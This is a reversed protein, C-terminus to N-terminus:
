FVVGLGVRVGDPCSCSTGPPAPSDSFERTLVRFYTILGLVRGYRVGTGIDFVFGTYTDSRGDFTLGGYEFSIGASPAWVPREGSLFGVSAELATNWASSNKRDDTERLLGRLNGFGDYRYTIVDSSNSAGYLGGAELCVSWPRTPMLILGVEAAGGLFHTLGQTLTQTVDDPSIDRFSFGGEGVRGVTAVGYLREGTYRGGVVLKDTGDESALWVSPSGTPVAVGQCAQGVLPLPAVLCALFFGALIISPPRVCLQSRNTDGSGGECRQQQM